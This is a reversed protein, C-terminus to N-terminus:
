HELMQAALVRREELPGLVGQLIVNLHHFHSRGVMFPGSSHFFFNILLPKPHFFECIYMGMVM